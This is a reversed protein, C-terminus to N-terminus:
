LGARRKLEDAVAQLAEHLDKKSMSQLDIGRLRRKENPPLQHIIPLVQDATLFERRPEASSPTIRRGTCITILEDVSYGLVPALAEITSPQLKPNEKLEIKWITVYSLGVVEGFQPLSMSGRKQKVLRALDELGKPSM